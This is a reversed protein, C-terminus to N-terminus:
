YLNFWGALFLVLGAYVGAMVDDLVIGAGAALQEIRRAPPPKVIDFVRFLVFGATLSRWNLRSAGALTLWQGLVEDIVVFQPDKRGSERAVVSAAAIAPYLMGMTLIVLAARSSSTLMLPAALFVAVASGATGPGKPVFGCGFCTAFLWPGTWRRNNM